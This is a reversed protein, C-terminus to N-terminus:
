LAEVRPCIAALEGERGTFPAARKASQVIQFGHMPTLYEVLQGLVNPVGQAGLVNVNVHDSPALSAADAHPMHGAGVGTKEPMKITFEDGSSISSSETGSQPAHYRVKAAM